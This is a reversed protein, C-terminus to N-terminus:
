ANRPQLMRFDDPPTAMGGNVARVLPRHVTPHCDLDEVFRILCRASSEVSFSLHHTPKRLVRGDHCDVLRSICVRAPGIQQHGVESGSRELVPEVLGSGHAPLIRCRDDTVDGVRDVMGVAEVDDM